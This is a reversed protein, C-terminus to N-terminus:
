TKKREIHFQKHYLIKILLLNLKRDLTHKPSFNKSVQKNFFSALKFFKKSLIYVLENCSKKM